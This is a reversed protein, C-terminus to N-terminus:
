TLLAAYFGDGEDRGPLRWMERELRHEPSDRLAAAVVQENEEPELSCTAYLLRGGPAVLKLAQGLIAKQRQAFQQLDGAQVRWKIEPNRSLTGTGSCPADVFVRDFNRSFPLPRTGDLAVRDIVPPVQRLRKFSIDAAVATRLPTELAQLTKNGPASCIDLYTNGPQLDLMPVIAQSSIDYLRVNPPVPGDLGSGSLRYCGEIVTPETQVGPPPEAGPAIRIYRKPEALAAVAIAEAEQEGFHDTWRRLLWLPCSLETQKDPWCVPQRNVRRLVANVMGSAARKHMKVFEVAEHVAAHTPIRDLYRLQFVAARLSLVVPRDLEAAARGSYLQILYDLQSQYRLSGFVIQSALGADRSSLAQSHELLTDTAYAGEYVAELVQFAIARAPSLRRILVDTVLM